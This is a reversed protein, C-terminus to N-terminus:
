PTLPQVARDQAWILVAKSRASSGKGNKAEASCTRSVRHGRTNTGAANKFLMEGWMNYVQQTLATQSLQGNNPQNTQQTTKIELVAESETPGAADYNYYVRRQCTLVLSAVGSENDQATALVSVEGHEHFVIATPTVPTGTVYPGVDLPQIAVKTTFQNTASNWVSSQADGTVRIGVNPPTTDNNSTSAGPCGSLLVVVSLAAAMRIATRM